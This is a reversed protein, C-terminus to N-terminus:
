LSFDIITKYKSEIKEIEKDFEDCQTKEKSLTQIQKHNKNIVIKIDNIIKEIETIYKKLYIHQKEHIVFDTYQSINKMGSYSEWGSMLNNLRYKIKIFKNLM